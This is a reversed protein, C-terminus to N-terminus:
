SEVKGSDVSSAGPHDSARGRGSAWPQLKNRYRVSSRPFQAGM